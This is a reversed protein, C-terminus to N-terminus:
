IHILSLTLSSTPVHSIPINTFKPEKNGIHVLLGMTVVVISLIIWGWPYQKHSISRQVIQSDSPSIDVGNISKQEM